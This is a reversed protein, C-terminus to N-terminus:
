QDVTKVESLGRACPESNATYDVCTCDVGNCFVGHCQIYM